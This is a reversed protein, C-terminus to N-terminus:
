LWGGQGVVRHSYVNSNHEGIAIRPFLYDTDVATSAQALLSSM